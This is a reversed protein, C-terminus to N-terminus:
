TMTPARGGPRYPRSIVAQQPPTPGIRQQTARPILAAAGANHPSAMSTGSIAGVLQESGTLTTGALTALINVGPATIDPKIGDDNRRPGRSSYAAMTDALMGGAGHAMAPWGGGHM